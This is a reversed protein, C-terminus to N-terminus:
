ISFSIGITNTENKNSGQRVHFVNNSFLMASDSGDLFVANECGLLMLKAKLDDFKIGVSGQPQVIILLKGLAANVAIITKGTAAPRAQQNAYTANNRQTMSNKQNASVTGTPACGPPMSCVNGIGYPLGNIIIPGLGGMACQASVPPDGAGFEYGARGNDAIYFMLPASRGKRVGRQIILGDATTHTAAVPDSGMLADALGLNSVSYQVGNTACLFPTSVSANRVTTEFLEEETRLITNMRASVPLVMFKLSGDTYVIAPQTATVWFNPSDLTAM